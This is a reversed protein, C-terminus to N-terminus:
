SKTNRYAKGGPSPETHQFEPLPLLLMQIAKPEDNTLDLFVKTTIATSSLHLFVIARTNESVLFHSHMQAYANQRDLSPWACLTCQM